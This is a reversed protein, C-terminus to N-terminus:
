ELTCVSCLPSFAAVINGLVKICAWILPVELLQPSEGLNLLPMERALATGDGSNYTPNPMVLGPTSDSGLSVQPNTGM